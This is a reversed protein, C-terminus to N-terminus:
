RISSYEKFEQNFDFALKNIDFYIKLGKNELINAKKNKGLMSNEKQWVNNLRVGL